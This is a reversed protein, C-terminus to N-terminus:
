AAAGHGALVESQEWRRMARGTFGGWMLPYLVALSWHATLGLGFLVVVTGGTFPYGTAEAPHAEAEGHMGFAIAHHTVIAVLLLGALLVGPAERALVPREQLAVLGSIAFALAAAYGAALVWRSRLVARAELPQTRELLLQQRRTFPFDVGFLFGAGAAVIGTVLLAALRLQWGTLQPDEAALPVVVLSAPLFLLILAGRLFGGRAILLIDRRALAACQQGLPRLLVGLLRGGGTARSPRPAARDLREGYRLGALSVGAVGLVIAGVGWPWATALEGRGLALLAAGPTFAQGLWPGVVRLNAVGLVVLVGLALVVLRRVGVSLGAWAWGSVLAWGGLSLGLVPAAAWLLPSPRQSGLGAVASLLPLSLLTAVVSMEVARLRVLDKPGLGAVFLLVLERRRYLLGEGLRIALLAAVGV